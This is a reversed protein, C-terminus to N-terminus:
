FYAAIIEPITVRSLKYYKRNYSIARNYKLLDSKANSINIMLENRSVVDSDGSLIFEGNEVKIDLYDGPEFYFASRIALGNSSSRINMTEACDVSVKYLTDVKTTDLRFGDGYFNNVRTISYGGPAALRIEVSKDEAKNCGFLLSIFMLLSVINKM